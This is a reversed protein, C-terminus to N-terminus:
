ADTISILRTFHSDIYDTDYEWNTSPGRGGGAPNFARSVGRLRIRYAGQQYGAPVEFVVTQRHSRDGVSEHWYSYRNSRGSSSPQVLTPNRGCGHASAEVSRFHKGWARFTVRIGIDEGSPREIRPCSETIENDWEEPPESTPGWVIGGIDLNPARNDVTITSSPSTVSLPDMDSDGLQLRVEYSGDRYGRTNWNLVWYPFLLPNDNLNEGYYSELYPVDLIPYWGDTASPQVHVPDRGIAPVHWEHGTFPREPGGEYSYLVRYYSAEEFRHCGHLQLTGAFPATGDPRTSSGPPKPRNIRRAYGTADDYIPSRTPLLGISEISPTECEVNEPTLGDCTPISNAADDAVLDVDLSQEENWRVDFFGESYITEQTGDGDFDQTVRFTIDPVDVFTRWEPVFVDRCRLFPGVLRDPDVAAIVEPDVPLEDGLLELREEPDPRLFGEPLPPEPPEPFAPRDLLTTAEPELDGFDGRETGAGLRLAVDEGVLEATREFVGPDFLRGFGPDPRPEPRPEPPNVPDPFEEPRELVDRIRPRVIEPLCVRERRFDLVRDIDWLPVYVCFEGCENTTTTAVTERTCDFPFFWGYGLDSPFRSLFSCDTDEVHVTANPVPHYEGTASDHTVVRGCVQRFGLLEPAMAFELQDRVDLATTGVLDSPADDTLTRIHALQRETVRWDDPTVVNPQKVPVVDDADRNLMAKIDRALIDDFMAVDRLDAETAAELDDLTEYGAVRLAKARKPGIGPIQELESPDNTSM